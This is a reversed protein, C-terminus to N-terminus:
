LLAHAGCRLRNAGNREKRWRLVEEMKVLDGFQGEGTRVNGRTVVGNTMVQMGWAFGFEIYVCVCEDRELDKGREDGCLVRIKMKKGKKRNVKERKVEFGILSFEM